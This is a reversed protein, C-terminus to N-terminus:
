QLSAQLEIKLRTKQEEELKGKVLRLEKKLNDSENAQSKLKEVERHLKMNDLTLQRNKRVDVPETPETVHTEVPDVDAGLLDPLYLTFEMNTPFSEAAECEASAEDDALVDRTLQTQIARSKKVNLDRDKFRRGTVSHSRGISRRELTGGTGSRQLPVRDSNNDKNKPRRLSSSMVTNRQSQGGVYSRTMRASPDPDKFSKNRNIASKTKDEEPSKKSSDASKDRTSSTHISLRTMRKLTSKLMSTTTTVKNLTSKTDDKNPSKSKPSPSKTQSMASIMLHAPKPSIEPKPIHSGASNKRPSPQVISNNDKKGVFKEIRSELSDLESSIVESNKMEQSFNNLDHKDVSSCSHGSAVTAAAETQSGASTQAM